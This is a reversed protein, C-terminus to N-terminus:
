RSRLIVTRIENDWIVNGPEMLEVGVQAEQSTGPQGIWIIKYKARRNQRQLYIVQGVQRLGPMAALRAGFPSIEYTCCTQAETSKIDPFVKVPVAIQLRKETRQDVALTSSGKTQLGQNSEM